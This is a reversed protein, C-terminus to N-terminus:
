KINNKSFSSISQEFAHRAQTPDYPETTFLLSGFPTAGLPCPLLQRSFLYLEPVNVTKFLCWIDAM